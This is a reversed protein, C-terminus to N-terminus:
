ADPLKSTYPITKAETRNSTKYYALHKNMLIDPTTIPRERFRDGQEIHRHIGGTTKRHTAASRGSM